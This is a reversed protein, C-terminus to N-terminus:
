EATPESPEIKQSSSAYNVVTDKKAGANLPNSEILFIILLIYMLRKVNKIHYLTFRSIM